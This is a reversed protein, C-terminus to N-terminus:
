KNLGTSPAHKSESLILEAYILDIKLSVTTKLPCINIGKLIAKSRSNYFIQLKTPIITNGTQKDSQM